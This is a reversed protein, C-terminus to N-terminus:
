TSKPLLFLHPRRLFSLQDPCWHLTVIVCCQCIVRTLIKNLTPPIAEWCLMMEMNIISMRWWCCLDFLHRSWGGGPWLVCYDFLATNYINTSCGYRFIFVFVVILYYPSHCPIACVVVILYHPLLRIWAVATNTNATCVAILYHRQPRIRVQATATCVVMLYVSAATNM